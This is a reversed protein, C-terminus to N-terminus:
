LKLNIDFRSFTVTRKLYKWSVKDGNRDTFEKFEGFTNRILKIMHCPDPFICIDDTSEELKFTPINTPSVDFLDCGLLKATTINTATGDFTIGIVTAGTELCNEICHVILNKKQIALLSVIPFFGLPIKWQKNLCVAM